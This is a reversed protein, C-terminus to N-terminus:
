IARTPLSITFVTTPFEEGRFSAVTLEGGHAEIIRKTIALGLGVGGSKSTYFPDFIRGQMEPEIFSHTNSVEFVVCDAKAGPGISFRIRANENPVADIANIILNMLADNMQSYDCVVRGIRGDLSPTFQIKKGSQKIHERTLTTIGDVIASAATEETKLTVKRAFALNKRLYLELKTVEDHIISTYLRAKENPLEMRKLRSAFGGIPVISNRLDHAISASMEGILALRQAESLREQTTKLEREREGLRNYLYAYELAIGTQNAFMQLYSVDEDGIPQKTMPNDVVLVGFLKDQMIVPILAYPGEGFIGRYPADADGALSPNKINVPRREDVIKKFQPAIGNLPITIHSIKMTLEINDHMERESMSMFIKEVLSVDGKNATIANWVKFGEAEALPAVGMKGVFANKADDFLFLLARSFGSTNGITASILLIFLIDELKSHGLLASTVEYLIYLKRNNRENREVFSALLTHMNERYIRGALQSGVNRFLNADDETFDGMPNIASPVRDVVTLLGLVMGSVRLLMVLVSHRSLTNDMVIQHRFVDNTSFFGSARSIEEVFPSTMAAKQPLLAGSIGFFSRLSFQGEKDIIYLASGGAQFIRAIEPAFERITEDMNENTLLHLGLEKLLSIQINRYKSHFTQFMDNVHVAFHGLLSIIDERNKHFEAIGEDDTRITFVGFNESFIGVPIIAMHTFGGFDSYQTNNVNTGVIIESNELVRKYLDDAILHEIKCVYYRDLGALGRLILKEGSVLYVECCDFDYYERFRHVFSDVVNDIEKTYSANKLVELLNNKFDSFTQEM